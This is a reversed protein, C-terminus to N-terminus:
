PKIKLEIIIIIIKQVSHKEFNTGASDFYSRSRFMAVCHTHSTKVLINNNSNFPIEM